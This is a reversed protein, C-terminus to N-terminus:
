NFAKEINKVSYIFVEGKNNGTHIRLKEGDEVQVRILYDADHPFKDIRLFMTADEVRVLEVTNVSTMVWMINENLYGCDIIPQM